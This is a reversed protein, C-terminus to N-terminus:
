IRRPPPPRPAPPESPELTAGGKGDKIVTYSQYILEAEKEVEEKRIVGQEEKTFCFKEILEEAGVWSWGILVAVSTVITVPWFIAALLIARPNSNACNWPPVHYSIFDRVNTSVKCSVVVICTVLLCIVICTILLYILLM